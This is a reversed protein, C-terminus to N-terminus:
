QFPGTSRAREGKACCSFAALFCLTAGPLLNDTMGPYPTGEPVPELFALIAPPPMNFLRLIDTTQHPRIISIKKEREQMDTQDPSPSSYTFRVSPTLSTYLPAKAFLSTKRTKPAYRLRARASTKANHVFQKADQRVVKHNLRTLTKPIETDCPGTNSEM